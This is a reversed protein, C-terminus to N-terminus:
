GDELITIADISDLAELIAQARAETTGQPLSLPIDTMRVFNDRMHELYEELNPFEYMHEKRLEDIIEDPAGEYEQDELLIKM